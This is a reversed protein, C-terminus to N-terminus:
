TISEILTRWKEVIKTVNFDEARKIANDSIYLRKKDNYILEIVKKALENCDYNNILIGNYENKNIIESPGSNRFSVVPVGCEM